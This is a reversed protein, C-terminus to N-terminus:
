RINLSKPPPKGAYIADLLRMERSHLTSLFENASGMARFAALGREIFSQLEGFGALQAPKRAVKVATLIMRKRTVEELSEGVEVTCRM